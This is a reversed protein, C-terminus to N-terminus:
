APVERAAEDERDLRDELAELRAALETTEHAERWERVGRIVAQGASASLRGLAVARSVRELWESADEPVRLPPLDHLGAAFMERTVRGGERARRRLEERGGPGHAVCFGTEPDVVPNKCPEGAANVGRCGEGASRRM